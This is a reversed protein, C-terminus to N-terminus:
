VHEVVILCVSSRSKHFVGVVSLAENVKVASLRFELAPTILDSSLVVFSYLFWNRGLDRCFDIVSILIDDESPLMIRVPDLIFGAKRFGKQGLLSCTKM